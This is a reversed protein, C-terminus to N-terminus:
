LQPWDKAWPLIQEFEAAVQLLLDERFRPAVFQIGIPLGAPSLGARLSIAPHGSFNFPYTYAIAGGPTSVPEGDVELPIPGEAAFPEVATTPTALLDYRALIEELTSVLRARQRLVDGLDAPRLHKALEVGMRYGPDLLEEDHFHAGHFAYDEVSMLRAWDLVIDELKVEVPEVVHGAKELARLAAEVANEVARAPRAYGLTLSYGIRLRPPERRIVEQYSIGPHPLSFPDEPHPGVTVDLWLAADEVTRTLPGSVICHSFRLAEEPGWPIRGQSPKLGVLGTFAAPIRVSGGGDSATALPVLGGAVAASSGGSSGGPTRELDWPNRTAGFVRNSSFATYGFEPTNTKGVVIAGAQKLRAVQITDRTAVRDRFLLSGHTTPLGVTDELDKVGLPLGALPGVEEKRALRTEVARAAELLREAPHQAVFANLKPNVQELRELTFQMLEVPSLDGRRIMRALDAASAFRLDM